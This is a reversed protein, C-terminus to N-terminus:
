YNWNVIRKKLLTVLSQLITIILAIFFIGAIAQSYNAYALASRVFYGIGSSAGIMEAVSLTMMSISLSVSMDNIIRPLTYPMIIEFLMTRTNVNLVKATNIIRSDITGVRYIMNMFTSFFTGCFIVVISAITFTPMIAVIYPGYIIAPVTSIAKVVPFVAEKLRPIWGVAIGLAVAVIISSFYGSFLLFMSRALGLLIFKWQNPFVYFVNEPTPVFIYPLLDLKTTATEWIIFFIFIGCAIDKAQRQNELGLKYQFFAMILTLVAIFAKPDSVPIRRDMLGPIVAVAITIVYLLVPLNWIRGWLKIKKKYTLNM